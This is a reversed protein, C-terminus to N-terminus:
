TDLNKKKPCEVYSDIEIDRILDIFQQNYKIELVDM